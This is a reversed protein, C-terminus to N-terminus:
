SLDAWGSMVKVKTQAVALREDLLAREDASTGERMSLTHQAQKMRVLADRCEDISALSAIDQSTWVREIVTEAQGIVTALAEDCALPVTDSAKKDPPVAPTSADSRWIRQIGAVDCLLAWSPYPIPAEGGTYRRIGRGTAGKMGLLRAAAAGTLGARRLVERVEEGTPQVWLEDAPRLCEPRIPIQTRDTVNLERKSCIRVFRM